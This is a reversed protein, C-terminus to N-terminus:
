HGLELRNFHGAHELSHIFGQYFEIVDTEHIKKVGDSKSLQNLSYENIM